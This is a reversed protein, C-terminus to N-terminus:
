FEDRLPTGSYTRPQQQLKQLADELAALEEPKMGTYTRPENMLRRIGGIDTPAGVAGRQSPIMNGLKIPEASIGGPGSPFADALPQDGFLRRQAPELAQGAPPQLNLAGPSRPAFEDALGSVPVGQAAEAAAGPSGTLVRRALGQGGTVHAWFAPSLLSEVNGGMAKGLDNAVSPPTEIRNPWQTVGPHENAFQAATQFEGTLLDPDRQQMRAIAQLDVNGGKVAGQLAYNKALATRAQQFQPLDVTSGPPLTDAIHQELARAIDLQASGLNQQEVDDSGLRAGGEQRLARSTQVVQPGTLPGQLKAKQADITAQTAASPATLVNEASGAGNVMAAAKPSLPATPLSTELRDYVSGPAARGQALSGSEGPVLATGPPVGAESGLRGNAINANQISLAQTGSSGAAGAAVPHDAATRYGARAAPSAAAATAEAANSAEAGAAIPAALGATGAIDGAESLQNSVAGAPLGVKQGAQELLQKDQQGSQALPAVMNSVAAGIAKGVPTQTDHGFTRNVYEHAADAALQGDGGTAAAILRNVLAIPAGVMGTAVKSVGSLAADGVGKAVDGATTPAPANSKVAWPNQLQAPAQGVVDWDAM